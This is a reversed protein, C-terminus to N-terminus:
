NLTSSPGRRIGPAVTIAISIGNSALHHIPDRIDGTSGLLVRFLQLEELIFHILEVLRVIVVDFIL